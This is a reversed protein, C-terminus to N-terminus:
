RGMEHLATFVGGEKYVGTVEQQLSLSLKKKRTVYLCFVSQPCFM